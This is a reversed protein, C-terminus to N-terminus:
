EDAPENAEGAKGKCGSTGSRRVGPELKPRTPRCHPNAVSSLNPRHVDPVRDDNSDETRHAGNDACDEVAAHSEHVATRWLGVTFFRPNLLGPSADAAKGLRGTLHQRDKPLLHQTIQGAQKFHCPDIHSKTYSQYAHCQSPQVDQTFPKHRSISLETRRLRGDVKDTRPPYKPSEYTNYSETGYSQM